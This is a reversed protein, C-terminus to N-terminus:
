KFFGDPVEVTEKHYLEICSKKYSSGMPNIHHGVSYLRGRKDVKNTIYFRNGTEEMLDYLNHAQLQHIFNNQHEQAIMERIRRIPTGQKRQEKTFEEIDFEHEEENNDVFEFNLCLPIRNQTNIVDLAINGDHHNASGGLILSEGKLYEYGSDRNNRVTLPRTISPPIFMGREAIVREEPTLVVSPIVHWQGNRVLPSVTYLGVPELVAIIEGALTIGQHNDAFGLTQGIQSAMSALTVTGKALLVASFVKNIFDPINLYGISDKREQKTKYAAPESVWQEILDVGQAIMDMTDDQSTILDIIYERSAKKSYMEEINAQTLEM